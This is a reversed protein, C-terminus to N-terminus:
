DPAASPHALHAERSTNNVDNCTHIIDCVTSPTYFHETLPSIFYRMDRSGEDDPKRVSLPSM